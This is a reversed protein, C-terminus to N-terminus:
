WGPVVGPLLRHHTDYYPAEPTRTAPMVGISPPRQRRKMSASARLALAQAAESRGRSVVRHRRRLSRRARAPHVVDSRCGHPRSGAGLLVNHDRCVAFRGSLHVFVGIVAYLGDVDMEAVADIVFWALHRPPLWERVDPPMLFSQERDCAVFRQAM